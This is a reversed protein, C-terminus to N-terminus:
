HTSLTKTMTVGREVRMARGQVLTNTMAESMAGRMTRGQRQQRGQGTGQVHRGKGQGKSSTYRTGRTAGTDSGPSTRPLSGTSSRSSCRTSTSPSIGPSTRPSTGPTPRPRPSCRPLSPTSTRPKSATGGRTPPTRTRPTAGRPAGATRGLMTGGLGAGRDKTNSRTGGGATRGVVTGDLGAGRDETNSRTAGGATMGLMIGGPGAGRVKYMDGGRRADEDKKKASRGVGRGKYRGVGRGAGEDKLHQSYLANDMVDLTHVPSRGTGTCQVLTSNDYDPVEVPRPDVLPYSYSGGNLTEEFEENHDKGGPKHQRPRRHRSPPAALRGQHTDDKGLQGHNGNGHTNRWHHGHHASDHTHLGHHADDRAPQGHDTDNHIYCRNTDNGGSTRDMDKAGRPKNGRSTGAKSDGSSDGSTGAKSDGSPDSSSNGGTEAKSDSSIDNEAKGLSTEAKSDDSSTVDKSDGSSDSSSNDSAEPKAKTKKKKALTKVLKGTPNKNDPQSAIHETVVIIKGELGEMLEHGKLRRGEEVTFFLVDVEKGQRAAIKRMAKKAPKRKSLTLKSSKRGNHDKALKKAHGKALKGTPTKDAQETVVINKGEQGEKMEQGKLRRGEEVTFFLGDEEKGLRAAIKRRNKKVPKRKSLTKVIMGTPAKDDTQHSQDKAEARYQHKAETKKKKALTKVLM